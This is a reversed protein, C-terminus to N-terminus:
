HARRDRGEVGSLSRTPPSLKQELEAVRTALASGTPVNGQGKAANLYTNILGEKLQMEEPPVEGIAQYLADLLEARSAPESLTLQVVQNGVKVFLDGKAVQDPLQSADTVAVEKGQPTKVGTVQNQDNKVLSNQDTILRSGEIRMRNIMREM